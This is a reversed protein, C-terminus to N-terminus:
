ILFTANLLYLRPPSLAAAPFDSLFVWDTSGKVSPPEISSAPVVALAPPAVTFPTIAALSPLSPTDLRCCDCKMTRSATNCGKCCTNQPMISADLACAGTMLQAVLISGAIWRRM